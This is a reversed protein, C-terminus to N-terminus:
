GPSPAKMNIWLNNEKDRDLFNQKVEALTELSGLTNAYFCCQEGLAMCLSGEKLFLLDLSRQNHLVVEALSDVQSEWFLTTSYFQAM